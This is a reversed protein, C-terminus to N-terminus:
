LLFDDDSLVDKVRVDSVNTFIRHENRSESSRGDDTGGDFTWGKVVSEHPTEDNYEGM